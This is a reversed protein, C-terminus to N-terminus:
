TSAMFSAICYLAVWCILSRSVVNEGMSVVWLHDAKAEQRKGFLNFQRCSSHRGEQGREQNFLARFLGNLGYGLSLKVSVSGAKSFSLSWVCGKGDQEYQHWFVCIHWQQNCFALKTRKLVINPLALLHRSLLSYKTVRACRGKNAALVM